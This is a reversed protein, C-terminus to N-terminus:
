QKIVRKVVQGNESKIILLYTGNSFGSVDIITDEFSNIVNITKIIRGRLDVTSINTLQLNHKNKITIYNTTPNPFVTVGELENETIGLSSDKVHLNFNFEDAQTSHMSAKLLYTAGLTLDTFLGSNSFCQIDAAGCTEYLSYYQVFTPDLDTLELDGDIPMTFSFWVDLVSIAESSPECSSENSQTAAAVNAGYTNVNNLEVLVNQPTTCEDNFLNEFAQFRVNRSQANNFTQAMRLLYTVGFALDNFTNAGNDCLIEAGSCSNYLTIRNSFLINSLQLNGTVPMVFEYWLDLNDESATECSADLSETARRTDVVYETFITTGITILEANTCEDNAAEEFAQIRMSPINSITFSSVRLKYSTGSTLGYIFQLGSKCSIETGGCADYLTVRQNGTIQKISINGNVPMIFDFWLDYNIDSATECSSDTSESAARLDAAYDDHNATNVIIAQSNACDNNTAFVFAQLRFDLIKANVAKTSVRLMYTTGLTLNTFYGNEYNCDVEAGGCSDFISFTHRDSGVNSIQINGNVPMVFDYWVDVNNETADECSADTSETATRTDVTFDTYNATPMTITESNACEDNPATAFAQVRFNVIADFRYSIRLIYTTGSTLVGFSSDDQGCGIESGGCTSYLTLFNLASVNSVYLVGDVPMTFEYWVDRNDVSITECSADLSETAETFDVSYQEYNTTGITITERNVCNNNAPVQANLRISLLFLFILFYRTKM